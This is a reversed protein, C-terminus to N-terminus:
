EGVYKRIQYEKEILDFTEIYPIKEIYIWREIYVPKVVFLRENKLGTYADYSGKYCEKFHECFRQNEVPLGLEEAVGEIQINDVCLAVNPNVILQKYKKFDADTQFYFLGDILVVSMMRSSVINDASTSLVMTKGKGFEAIFDNYKVFFM